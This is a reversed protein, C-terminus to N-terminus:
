RDRALVTTERGQETSTPDHSEGPADTTRPATSAVPSSSSLRFSGIGAVQFLHPLGRAHSTAVRVIAHSTCTATNTRRPPNPRSPSDRGHNVARIDPRGPLV